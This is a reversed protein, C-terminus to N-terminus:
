TGPASNRVSTGHPPRHLNGLSEVACDTGRSHPADKAPVLFVTGAVGTTADLLRTTATVTVEQETPNVVVLGNTFQRSYVGLGYRAVECAQLPSGLDVDYERLWWLQGHLCDGRDFGFYGGDMLLSTGLGLRARRRDNDSLRWLWRATFPTRGDARVDVAMLHFPERGAVKRVTRCYGDWLNKWEVGGFQDGLANEHMCGNAYQYYPCDESWPGGGNGTLIADPYQERLSKLLFLMGAQWAETDRQDHTGDGNVDQQDPEGQWLCDMMLGDYGHPVLCVRRM